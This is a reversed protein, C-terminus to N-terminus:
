KLSSAWLEGEVAIYLTHTQTWPWISTQVIHQSAASQKIDEWLQGHLSVLIQENDDQWIESIDAALCTGKYVVITFTYKVIISWM